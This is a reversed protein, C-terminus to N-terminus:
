ALCTNAEIWCNSQRVRSRRRQLKEPYDPVATALDTNYSPKLRRWFIRLSVANMRIRRSLRVTPRDARTSLAKNADRATGFLLWLRALMSRKRQAPMPSDPEGLLGSQKPPRRAPRLHAAPIAIRGTM